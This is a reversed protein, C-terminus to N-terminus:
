VGVMQSSYRIWNTANKYSALLSSPVYIRMNPTNGGFAAGQMVPISSGMFYFSLGGSARISILASSSLIECAPFSFTTQLGGGAYCFAVSGIMECKPMYINQLSCNCFANYLISKCTPFYIDSLYFCNKFANAEIKKCEPFIVTSFSCSMFASNEITECEPFIVESLSSCEAFALTGIKRCKPFSINKLERCRTFASSGIDVCEPFIADTLVSWLSGSFGGSPVSIAGDAQVFSLSAWDGMHTINGSKLHMRTIPIYFNNMGTIQSTYALPSPSEDSVIKVSGGYVCEDGRAGVEIGRIAEPLNCPKIKETSETKERVADAADTAWDAFTSYGSILEAM